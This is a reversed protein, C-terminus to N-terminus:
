NAMFSLFSVRYVFYFIIKVSQIQHFGELELLEFINVTLLYYKNQIQREKATNHQLRLFMTPGRRRLMLSKEVSRFLSTLVNLDTCSVCICVRRQLDVQM